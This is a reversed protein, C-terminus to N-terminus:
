ISRSVFSVDATNKEEILFFISLKNIHHINICREPEIKFVLTENPRIGLQLRTMVYNVQVHDFDYHRMM